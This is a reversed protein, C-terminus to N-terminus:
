FYLIKIIIEDLELCTIQLTLAQRLLIIALDKYIFSAVRV